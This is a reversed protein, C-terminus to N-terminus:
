SLFGEFQNGSGTVRRTPPGSINTSDELMILRVQRTAQVALGGSLTSFFNWRFLNKVEKSLHDPKVITWLHGVVTGPCADWKDNILWLYMSLHLDFVKILAVFWYQKKRVIWPSLLSGEAASPWVEPNLFNYRSTLEASADLLCLFVFVCLCICFISAQSSLCLSLFYLNFCKSSVLVFLSGSRLIWSNVSAPSNGIFVFVCLCFICMLFM